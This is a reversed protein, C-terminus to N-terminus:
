DFMCLKRSRRSMYCRCVFCFTCQNITHCLYNDTIYIYYTHSTVQCQLQRLTQQFRWSLEKVTPYCPQTLNKFRSNGKRIKLLFMSIAYLNSKNQKNGVLLAIQDWCPSLALFHRASPLHNCTAKPSRFAHLWLQGKGSGATLERGAIFFISKVDKRDKFVAMFCLSCCKKLHRM